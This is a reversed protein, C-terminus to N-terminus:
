GYLGFHILCNGFHDFIMGYDPTGFYNWHIMGYGPLTPIWIGKAAVEEILAEIPDKGSTSLHSRTLPCSETNTESMSYKIGELDRYCTKDDDQLLTPIAIDYVM